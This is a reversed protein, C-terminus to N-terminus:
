STESCGIILEDLSKIFAPETKRGDTQNFCLFTNRINKHKLSLKGGGRKNEKAGGDRVIGIKVEEGSKMALRDKPTLMKRVKLTIREDSNNEKHGGMNFARMAKPEGTARRKNSGSGM